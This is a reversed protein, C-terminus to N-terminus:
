FLVIKGRRNDERMLRVIPFYEGQQDYTYVIENQNYKQLEHILDHVTMGNVYTHMIRKSPTAPIKEVKIPSM